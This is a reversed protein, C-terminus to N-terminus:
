GIAGSLHGENFWKLLGFCEEVVNFDGPLLGVFQMYPPQSLTAEQYVEGIFGHQKVGIQRVRQGAFVGFGVLRVSTNRFEHNVGDPQGANVHNRRAVVM